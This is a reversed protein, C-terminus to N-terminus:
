AALRSALGSIALSLRVRLPSRVLAWRDRQHDYQLLFARGRSRVRYLRYGGSRGQPRRWIRDITEIRYVRGRWRFSVPARASNLKVPVFELREITM